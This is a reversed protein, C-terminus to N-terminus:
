ARLIARVPSGDVGALKLPLCILEYDGPPVKELRVGELIAIDRDLLARHSPLALSNLPDVSPADTGVLLIGRDAIFAAADAELYVFGSDFADGSYATSRTKFLVRQIDRWDLTVLDEVTIRENVDISFVRAPGILINMSMGAIDGGTDDLHYPADLHTGTHTGMHIASVNSSRGDKIRSVQYLRVEPDGPWVAMGDQITRTIDYYEVIGGHAANNRFSLLINAKGSSNAYAPLSKEIIYHLKKTL